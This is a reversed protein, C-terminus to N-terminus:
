AVSLQDLRLEREASRQSDLLLAKNLDFDNLLWDSREILNQLKSCLIKASKFEVKYMSPCAKDQVVKIDCLLSM